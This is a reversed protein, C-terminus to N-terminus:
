YPFVVEISLLFKTGSVEDVVWFLDIPEKESKAKQNESRICDDLWIRYDKRAPELKWSANEYIEWMRQKEESYFEKYSAIEENKTYTYIYKNPNFYLNEIAWEAGSATAKWGLKGEIGGFVMDLDSDAETDSTFKLWFDFTTNSPIEKNKYAFYINIQEETMVQEINKFRDDKTSEKATEM